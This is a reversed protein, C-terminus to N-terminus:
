APARQLQVQIESDVFGLGRYLDIAVYDPDAVIVLTRAGLREHAIEAAARLLASALGRRRHDPHTEVNQYRALGSGDTVIGLSARVLGDVFAGVYEGHGDQTLRRAEAAKREVFDLHAATDDDDIALRLAVAQQWDSDSRLLRVDADAAQQSPTLRGATLVVSRELELGAALLETLDGTAGEVGDIGIAVHPASPLEARFVDLWRAAGGPAPPEAMLVFNGWYFAPNGPTEVVLYDGKDTVKADALRRLMLDTRFGLSRVQV